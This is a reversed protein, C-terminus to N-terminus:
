PTTAVQEFYTALHQLRLRAAVEQIRRIRHPETTVLLPRLETLAANQKITWKAGNLGHKAGRYSLFHGVVQFTFYFGPVNPGPVLVLPAVLILLVLDIWMWKFHHDLDKKLTRRIIEEAQVETLDTPIQACVCTATRLHWLLRQEAIREVVFGMARRRLRTMLGVKEAIEQEEEHRRLRWEEAERLMESFRVRVRHILGRLGTAGDAGEAGDADQAGEPAEYYLEYQDETAAPILFVDM